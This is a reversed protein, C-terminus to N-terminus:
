RKFIKAFGGIVILLIVAAAILVGREGAPDEGPPIPTPQAAAPQPNLTQSQPQSSSSPQLEVEVTPLVTSPLTFSPEAAQDAGIVQYATGDLVVIVQEGLALAGAAEPRTEALKFYDGSLYPVEVVQMQQPDFITDVWIGEQMVFTKAGVAKVQQGVEKSYSPAVDAQAMGGQGAAREVADMGYAPQEALTEMEAFAKNSLEEQAAAGLPMPETVLYSTYPTVIGYRISLRVIQDITESDPGSLRVQQLLAGIKRTAWLRPLSAAASVDGSSNVAFVQQPFTFEQRQENILGTLKLSGTGGTRYRGLVVVQSGKFLDPLPSPVLDYVQIGGFDIKLDTLVPTSIRAYFGSLIEDLAQGPRVYTSLGHHAQSLSDLLFTDVDYGVGFAFLKVSRPAQAEFNMLIQESDTVGETPLGDTLFILYTPREPDAIDAAELLARNIDTSGAAGLQQAWAAAQAAESAPRLGDAYTEMGSSFSLLYFRDGSNLNDLIFQLAAQAQQFKEGDMSGSRDLVLLVDKDIAEQQVEPSPALLLMFFGDADEVSSPDRYTLLHFAEAKGLSYYLTFDQDPLVNEEEYSATVHQNGDRYSDISHSPSYVARIPEESQIDVSVRVNELPLTSFKETNLPYVFQVLGNDATLVQTYELEIRREGEPPIPYISAQFAGRGIYELLAPDRLDRVIQEYQERAQGAELVKGPVAQGDIWLSFNSIAADLPLPFIYEGEVEWDNPNYFVQDVHVTAIQRDIKVDVHHYRIVLQSIPHPLPEDPCQGGPCVPPQPIIIGDASAPLVFCVLLFLSLVTSFLLKRNM